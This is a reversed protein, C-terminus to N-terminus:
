FYLEDTETSTSSWSFASVPADAEAFVSSIEVDAVDAPEGTFLNIPSETTTLSEGTATTTPRMLKTTDVDVPFLAITPSADAMEGLGYHGTSVHPRPRTSSRPAIAIQSTSRHPRQPPTRKPAYPNRLVSAPLRGGRDYWIQLQAKLQASLRHLANAKPRRSPEPSLCTELLRLIGFHESVSSNDFRQRINSNRPSYQENTIVNWVSVGFAYMDAETSQANPIESDNTIQALEPALYGTTYAIDETDGDPRAYGFDGLVVTPLGYTANPEWKLFINRPKIDRHLYSRQRHAISTTTDTALDYAIDGHHLFALADIMSSVFHMTFHESVSSSVFRGMHDTVDGCDCFEFVINYMPVDDGEWYPSCGIVRLINKHTDLHHMLVAAEEPEVPMRGNSGLEAPVQKIIFKTGSDRHKVLHVVGQSIDGFTRILEYEQSFSEVNPTIPPSSDKTPAPEPEPKPKPKAKPKLASKLKSKLKKIFNPKPTKRKSHRLRPQSEFRSSSIRNSSSMPPMLILSHSFEASFGEFVNLSDSDVRARAIEAMRRHVVSTRPFPLQPQPQLQSEAQPQPQSTPQPPPESVGSVRGSEARRNKRWIQWWRQKPKNKKRQAPPARARSRSRSGAM